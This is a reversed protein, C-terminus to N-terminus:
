NQRWSIPIKLTTRITDRHEKLRQPKPWRLDREVSMIINKSISSQQVDSDCPVGDEFLFIETPIM